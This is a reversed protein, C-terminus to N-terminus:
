GAEKAASTTAEEVTDYTIIANRGPPSPLGIRSDIARDLL